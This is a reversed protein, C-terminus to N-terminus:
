PNVRTREKYSVGNKQFSLKKRRYELRDADAHDDKVLFVKGAM